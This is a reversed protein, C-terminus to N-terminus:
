RSVRYMTYKTGIADVDESKLTCRLLLTPLNKLLFINCVPLTYQALKQLEPGTNPTLKGMKFMSASIHLLNGDGHETILFERVEQIKHLRKRKPWPSIYSTKKGKVLVEFGAARLITMDEMIGFQLFGRFVLGHGELDLLDRFIM